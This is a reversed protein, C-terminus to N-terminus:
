VANFFNSLSVSESPTTPGKFEKQYYKRFTHEQRWNGTALIQDISFNEMWNLSAVASRISGPSDEIGAEKLASKVWNGIITRSAPKPDGRATIFLETWNGQKRRDESIALLHRIWHVCDLNKDPHEIVKWGSQRNTGNDTKSGFSPWLVIANGDDILEDIGIKLLTLDHVRRGSTLLLLTATRRSVEHLSNRNPTHTSLFNILMKPDWIPPKAKKEKAVSIAKLIHTVFFNSSATSSSAASTFTAIVSKHVLITRYALGEENHLYALYRAITVPDPNKFNISNAVCWTRWKKWIPIYTNITSKRWSSMLLSKEQDSWDKIIDDWGFDALSGPPHETSGSSPNENEHRNPSVTPGTHSTPRSYSSSASRGDLIGEELESCNLHISRSVHQPPITGTSDFETTSVAVSAQLGVKSLLCQSIASSSGPPGSICINTGCSSDGVRLSGRGADGVYPINDRDCVNHSAMGPPAERSVSRRSRHQIQGPLVASDLLREISGAANTVTTDFRTTDKIQDRRRQQHVGGSYSQGNSSSCSCETVQPTRPLDRRSGCIVGEPQRAVVTARKEVSRSNEDTGASSGLRHRVCGYNTSPIYSRHTDTPIRMGGGDVVEYGDTCRQTNPNEQASTEQAVTSQPIAYNSLAIKRKSCRFHCLQAEGTPVPGTQPVLQREVDSSKTSHTANLVKDRVPVKHQTKHGMYGRPIGPTKNSDSCIQRFKDDLRATADSKSHLSHTRSTCCQISECNFLRGFVGRMKHQSIEPVRRDLENCICLDKAGILSRLTSLDNTFTKRRLETESIEPTISGHTSPLVGPEFRTKGDLRSKSSFNTGPFSQIIPVEKYGRVRQSEELQLNSPINQRAETSSFIHIPLKSFNRGRRISTIKAHEKNTTDNSSDEKNQFMGHCSFKSLDSTTENYITYTGWNTIPM